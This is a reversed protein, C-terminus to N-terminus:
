LPEGTQGFGAQVNGHKHHVLSIGSAIVDQSVTLTGTITVDGLIATGGTAAFQVTAGEPLIATLAHGVPDYGIRAGDAFVIVEAATAGAPPFADQHIGLMAVAAAIQGDPVLLVVQEGVSPPSWVRTQGARAAAWRIPPTTAGGDEDDPNGYRVTCTGAALDVSAVTGMRILESADLPIDEHPTM